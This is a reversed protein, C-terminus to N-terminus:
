ELLGKKSIGTWTIRHTRLMSGGRHAVGSESMTCFGHIILGGLTLDQHLVNQVADALQDSEQRTVQGNQIPAHYVFVYILFTNKTMGGSMIGQIERDLRLPDVAIAPTRPVMDQDGFFVDEFGLETHDELIGVM